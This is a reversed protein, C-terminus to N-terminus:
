LAAESAQTGYGWSSMIPLFYTTDKIKGSNPFCYGTVGYVSEENEYINL